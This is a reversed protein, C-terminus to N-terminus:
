CRAVAALASLLLAFTLSSLHSRSLNCASCTNSLSPLRRRRHHRCKQACREWYRKRM